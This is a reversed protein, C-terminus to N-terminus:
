TAVTALFAVSATAGQVGNCVRSDTVVGKRGHSLRRLLNRRRQILARRRGGDCRAPAHRPKVPHKAGHWRFLTGARGTSPAARGETAGVQDIDEEGPAARGERPTFGALRTPVVM